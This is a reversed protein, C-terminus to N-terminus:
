IVGAGFIDGFVKTIPDKDLGILVSDKESVFAKVKGEIRIYHATGSVDEGKVNCKNAKIYYIYKINNLFLTDRPVTFSPYEDYIQQLDKSQSILESEILQFRFDIIKLGQKQYQNTSIMEMQSGLINYFSLLLTSFLCLGLLVLLM